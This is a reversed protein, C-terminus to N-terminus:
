RYLVTGRGEERHHLHIEECYQFQCGEFVGCGVTKISGGGGTQAPCLIGQGHMNQTVDLYEFRAFSLGKQVNLLYMGIGCFALATLILPLMVITVFTIYLRTKFKM